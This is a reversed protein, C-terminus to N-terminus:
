EYFHKWFQILGPAVQWSDIEVPVCALGISVITDARLTLVYVLEAIFLSKLSWALGIPVIKDARFTLVSVLEPSFKKFIIKKQKARPDM